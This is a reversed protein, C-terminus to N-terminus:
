NYGSGAIATRIPRNCASRIHRDLRCNIGILNRCLNLFVHEKYFRIVLQLCQILSAFNLRCIKAYFKM